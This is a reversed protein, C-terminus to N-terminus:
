EILLKDHYVNTSTTVEVLYAGKPLNATSIHITSETGKNSFRIVAKGSINYVSVTKVPDPGQVINIITRAPNPYVLPVKSNNVQIM